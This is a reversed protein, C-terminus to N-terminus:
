ETPNICVSLTGFAKAKWFSLWIGWLMLPWPFAHFSYRIAFLIGSTVSFGWMWCCGCTTQAWSIRVSYIHKLLFPLKKWVITTYRTETRKQSKPATHVRTRMTGCMVKKLEEGDYIGACRTPESSEKADWKIDLCLTTPELKKEERNIKPKLIQKGNKGHTKMQCQKRENSKNRICLNEGNFLPFVDFYFFLTSSLSLSLAFSSFHFM